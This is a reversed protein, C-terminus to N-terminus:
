ERNAMLQEFSCSLIEVVNGWPDRLYLAKDGDYLTVTEGVRTAGDACARDAVGDPDPATIAIHFLGGRQYQQELTWDKNLEDAPKVPPDIFQFIEFGVGNGTALFAIKVKRLQTGYIKFIPSEAGEEAQDTMRDDRIRRFGFHKGYFEAAKDLDDVAVAM